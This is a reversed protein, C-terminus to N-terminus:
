TGLHLFLLQPLGAAAGAQRLDSQVKRITFAQIWQLANKQHAELPAAM